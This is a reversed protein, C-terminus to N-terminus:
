KIPSNGGPNEVDESHPFRHHVKRHMTTKAPFKCEHGFLLFFMVGYNSPLTFNACLDLIHLGWRQLKDQSYSTLIAVVGPHSAPGDCTVGLMEDPKAQCNAPIWKYEQTSFLCHSLLTDQGLVCSCPLPEFGLGNSRSDLTSAMLVSFSVM